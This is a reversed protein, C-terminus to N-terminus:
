LYLKIIVTEHGRYCWRKCTYGEAVGGDEPFLADLVAKELNDKDPRGRHLQRDHELKKKKSWSDPMPIFFELDVRAPTNPIEGKFHESMANRLADRYDFYRQVCARRKSGTLWKDRRTMRPAGFPEVRVIFMGRKDDLEASLKEIVRPLNQATVPPSATKVLPGSNMALFTKSAHPFMKKLDSM